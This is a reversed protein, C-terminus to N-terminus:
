PKSDAPDRRAIQFTLKRASDSLVAQRFAEYGESDTSPLEVKTTVLKREAMLLNGNLTYTAQYKAYAKTLTLSAPVSPTFRQGLRIGITYSYEVPPGLQISKARHWETGGTYDGEASPLHFDSFPLAALWEREWVPIFIPKRIHFSVEFPQNTDTPDGIVVDDIKDARRDIGKVVGQVIVPWVSPAPGIFGQRLSLEADGRAVIKVTANLVGDEGVQGSVEESWFNPVPANDPTKEFHPSGEPPIVLGRKGRLSYSLMRFPLAASSPDMWIEDSGLRLLAIVHTFPYPSPVDIDIKREPNILVSSAHFGEAELLAALLAVKDKCDGYQNHLTESAL